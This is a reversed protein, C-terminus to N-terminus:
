FYRIFLPENQKQKAEKESLQPISIVTSEIDKVGETFDLNLLYSHKPVELHAQTIYVAGFHACSKVHQRSALPM